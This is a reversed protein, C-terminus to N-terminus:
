RNRHKRINQEDEVSRFQLNLTHTMYDSNDDFYHIWIM